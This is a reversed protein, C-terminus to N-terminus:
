YKTSYSESYRLQQPKKKHKKPNQKPKKESPVELCKQKSLENSIDVSFYTVKGFM